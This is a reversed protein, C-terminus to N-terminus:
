LGDWPDVELLTVELAEVFVVVGPLWIGSFITAAENLDGYGDRSGNPKSRESDGSGRVNKEPQM